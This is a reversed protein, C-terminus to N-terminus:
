YGAAKRGLEVAKDRIDLRGNMSGSVGANAVLLSEFKMGTYDATMAFPKELASLGADEYASAMLFLSKGKLPTKMTGADNDWKYLSFMRDFVLKTQASASFFYLPTAFVIAGAYAMRALVPRADDAIVCEYKDSKQCLRCSACGNSKYKLRAADIVEVDAGGALAGERFWEVLISTNGNKVPSGSIVMVKKGM